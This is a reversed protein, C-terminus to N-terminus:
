PEIRFFRKFIEWAIDGIRKKFEEKTEVFGQAKESEYLLEFLLEESTIPSFTIKEM